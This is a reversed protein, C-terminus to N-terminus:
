NSRFSYNPVLIIPNQQNQKQKADRGCGTETPSTICSAFTVYRLWALIVDSTVNCTGHFSTKNISFIFM